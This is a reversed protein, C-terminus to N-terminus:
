SDRGTVVGLYKSASRLHNEKFPATPNEYKAESIISNCLQLGQKKTLPTHMNALQIILSLAYPKSSLLPSKLGSTSIKTKRQVRKHITKTSKLPM